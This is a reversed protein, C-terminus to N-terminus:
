GEEPDPGFAAWDLFTQVTRGKTKRKAITWEAIRRFEEDSYKSKYLRVRLRKSGLWSAMADLANPFWEVKIDYFEHAKYVFYTRDKPEDRIVAEFEDLDDFWVDETHCEEVYVDGRGLSPADSANLMDYVGYPHIRLFQPTHVRRCPIGAGTLLRFVEGVVSRVRYYDSNPKKSM